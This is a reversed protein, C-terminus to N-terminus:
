KRGDAVRVMAVIMSRIVKPLNPWVNVVLDLNPEEEDASRRFVKCDPQQDCDWVVHRAAQQFLPSAGFRCAYVGFFVTTTLHRDGKKLLSGPAKGAKAKAITRDLFRLRRRLDALEQVCYQADGLMAHLSHYILAARIVHLADSNSAPISPALV